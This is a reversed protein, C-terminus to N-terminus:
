VTNICRHEIFYKLGSKVQEPSNITEFECTRVANEPLYAAIKDFDVDGLGAALHDRLGCVDHLHVGFIRTSFRKLWEDHPYFGLRSLQQAHGVDYVFGLQEPGALGLLVDLENPSPFERYHSRNEIGLRIRFRGAYALLELLSKKISEIGAEALRSRGKIMQRQIERYEDSERAGSEVLKYLQKELKANLPAYGVHVVVLSAGLRYALDVSRKIAKVGEQRCEENLSSVLWDQKVLIEAPIDAPCPEHISSISYRSLDIGVLMASTVKHNLEIRAFGARRAFEFFDALDPFNKVAWMTSLSAEYRHRPQVPKRVPFIEFLDKLKGIVHDPKLSQDDLQSYYKKELDSIIVAKSFGAKRAAAVDKKPQDGIYACKEPAIGMRAAANLLIDPDPKRKGVVTSLSSPIM